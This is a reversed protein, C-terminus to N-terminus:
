CRWTRSGLQQRPLRLQRWVAEADPVPGQLRGPSCTSQRCCTSAWNGPTFNVLRRHMRIRIIARACAEARRPTGEAGLRSGWQLMAALSDSHRSRGHISARPRPKQTEGGLGLSSPSIPRIRPPSSPSRTRPSSALWRRTDATGWGQLAVMGAEKWGQYTAIARPVEYADDFTRLDIKKRPRRRPREGVRRRRDQGPQVARQGPRHPRQDALNGVLRDAAGAAGGHVDIRGLVLGRFVGGYRNM